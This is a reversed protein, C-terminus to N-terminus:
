PASRAGCRRGRGIAHTKRAKCRGGDGAGTGSAYPLLRRETAAARGATRRGGRRPLRAASQVGADRVRKAPWRGAREDSSRTGRGSRDGGHPRPRLDPSTPVGRLDQWIACWAPIPANRPSQGRVGSTKRKTALVPQPLRSDSTTRVGAETGADSRASRNSRLLARDEGGILAITRHRLRDDLPPHKTAEVM